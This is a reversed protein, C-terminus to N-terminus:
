AGLYADVFSSDVFDDFAIELTDVEYKKIDQLTKELDSEQLKLNRYVVREEQALLNELIEARQGLFKLSLESAEKPNKNIFDATTLFDGLLKSVEGGRQTLVANQFTLVCCIHNNIIEYSLAFVDAIGLTEAQVCFPEAVIFGDISHSQLAFIMETPAMDILQVDKPSLGGQQLLNALLLYHTSFRSPIAIKLGKLEAVEKNQLVGKKIVLASGNRHAALIAKIDLGQSKLKLALPTLIFAGDISKSRLAESLDAWSSFKVPTFASQKLDKAIVLLHDTIPLYGIKLTKFDTNATNSCANFALASLTLSSAQLFGRRTM